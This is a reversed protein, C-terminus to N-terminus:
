KRSPNVFDQERGGSERGGVVAEPVNAKELPCLFRALALLAGVGRDIYCWFPRVSYLRISLFNSQQITDFRHRTIEWSM